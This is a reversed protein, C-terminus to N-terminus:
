MPLYVCGYVIPQSQSFEECLEVKNLNSSDIYDRAVEVAIRSESVIVVVVKDDLNLRDIESQPISFDEAVPFPVDRISTDSQGWLLM